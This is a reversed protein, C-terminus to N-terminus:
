MCKVKLTFELSTIFHITRLIVIHVPVNIILKKLNTSLIMNDTNHGQFILITKCSWMLDCHYKGDNSSKQKSTYQYTTTLPPINNNDVPRGKVVSHHSFVVLELLVLFSVVGSLDSVFCLCM